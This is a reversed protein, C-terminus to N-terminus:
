FNHIVNAISRAEGRCQCVHLGTPHIKCKLIRKKIMMGLQLLRIKCNLADAIKKANLLSISCEGREVMGIYTQHHGARFALEEQSISMALRCKHVNRGFAIDTKNM